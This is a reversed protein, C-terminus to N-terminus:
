SHDQGSGPPSDPHNGQGPGSRPPTAPSACLLGACGQVHCGHLAGQGQARCHATPSHHRQTAAHTPPPDTQTARGGSGLCSSNKLPPTTWPSSPSSTLSGRHHCVQQQRHSFSGLRPLLLRFTGFVIPPPRVSTVSCAIENTVMCKARPWCTSAPPLISRATPRSRLTFCGARSLLRM